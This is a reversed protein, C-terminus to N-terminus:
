KAVLFILSLGILLILFSFFLNIKIQDKNNEKIAAMLHTGKKALAIGASIIVIIQPISM